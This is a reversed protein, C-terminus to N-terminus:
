RIVTVTNTGTPDPPQSAVAEVDIHKSVGHLEITAHNNTGAIGHLGAESWAGFAEFDTNQNGAVKTGWLRVTVSNDSTTNVSTLAHGGVALLGGFETFTPGNNNFFETRTNNSFSSGHAELVLTNSNAAGPGVLGGDLECGLGNDEIRDGNSRVVITAFNVVTNEIICGLVNMYSRNGRMVVDINAHDANAANAIRIGQVGRSFEGDVIEVHIARGAMGTGVNRVDVGRPAGHTAVHAVRISANPTGALDTAISAVANPSGLVTLWQLANSGRGTRIPATPLVLSGFAAGLSSVPLGSADIVVAAQHDALGHLSMNRQLELRGGNPIAVGAADMPSLVYTGPALHIAAGENAPDNVAAYLHKVDAVHLVATASASKLAVLDTPTTPGVSRDTCAVIGLVAVLTSTVLRAM